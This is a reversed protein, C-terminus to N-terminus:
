DLISEAAAKLLPDREGAPASPLYGQAVTWVIAGGLGRSRVYEGKARVSEEDEYSLYTCGQPGAGDPFSLYPAKAADDWRRAPADHYLAMINAYSMENDNAVEVAGGLPQRPATPGRWCSGYFGLGVGLKAAPVGAALYQEVSGSVSSPHTGAHDALASHHWSEWGGWPGAMGYTMLNM